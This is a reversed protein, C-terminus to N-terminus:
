GGMYDDRYVTPVIIKLLGANTLEANILIRAIRGNGHLFPHVGRM